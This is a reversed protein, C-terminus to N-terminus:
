GAAAPVHRNKALVRGGQRDLYGSGLTLRNIGLEAKPWIGKLSVGIGSQGQRGPDLTLYFKFGVSQTVIVAHGPDRM